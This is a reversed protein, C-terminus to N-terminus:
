GIKLYAINGVYLVMSFIVHASSSARTKRWLIGVKVVESQNRAFDIYWSLTEALKYPTVDYFLSFLIKNHIKKQTM